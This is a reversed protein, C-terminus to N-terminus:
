PVVTFSKASVASGGANTVTIQGSIAGAPVTAILTTASKVTFTASTGNFLVATTGVFNNGAVTVKTGVKGKAPTFKTIAPLPAALGSVVQLVNGEDTGNTTTSTTLYLTGDSAQLPVSRPAAGNTVSDLSFLQTITGGLTVQLITGANAAGGQITTGYLNGDTAQVLGGYPAIGNVSPNQANFEWLKTFVGKTTIRFLTGQQYFTNLTGGASTVGYLNSDSAQVLAAMPAFGDPYIQGPQQPFSHLVTVKTGALKFVTGVNATGGFQTTGYFAGDKGQILGAYPHVGDTVGHINDFAHVTAFAGSSTVSFITGQNYFNQANGGSYTTGYFKGNKALILRGTPGGGEPPNALAGNFTHLVTYQGAPTIKFIVGCGLTGNCSAGANGGANTTGYFNGDPGQVLGGYPYIGNVATTGGSDLDFNYIVTQVGGPTLKYITGCGTVGFGNACRGSGGLVTTGYFNGDAGQIVEDYVFEGHSYGSQTIGDKLFRYTVNLTPAQAAALVVACMTFVGLILLMRFSSGTQVPM